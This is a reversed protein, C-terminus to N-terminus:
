PGELARLRARQSPNHMLTRVDYDLPNTIIAALRHIQGQTLSLYPKGYHHWAAAQLGYVGPGFEIVNLYLELIRDKSLFLELVLTAWVELYKRVWTREPWLFLNRALQMSITSAGFALKGLRRNAEMAERIAGLSIGWHRYFGHDELKLFAQRTSARISALSLYEQARFPIRQFFSRYVMFGTIPPDVWRYLFALMAVALLYVTHAYVLAKGLAVLNRKWGEFFRALM